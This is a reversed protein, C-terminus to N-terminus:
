LKYMIIVNEFLLPVYYSNTDIIQGAQSESLTNVENFHSILSAADSGVYATM